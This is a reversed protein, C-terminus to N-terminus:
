HEEGCRVCACWFRFDRWLLARRRKRNWRLQATSLYSILIHAGPPIAKISKFVVAAGQASHELSWECNPSCSHNVLASSVACVAGVSDPPSSSSSSEAGGGSQRSRKSRRPSHPPSPSLSPPRYLFVNARLRALMVMIEEMGFRASAPALFRAQKATDAWGELVLQDHETYSDIHECLTDFDRFEDVVRDDDDEEEGVGVGGDDKDGVDGEADDGSAHRSAARHRTALLLVRLLLRLMQTDTKARGQFLTQGIPTNYMMNLSACEEAHM